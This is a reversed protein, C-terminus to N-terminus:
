EPGLTLINPKKSKERFRYTKDFFYRLAFNYIKFNEIFITGIIKERLGVIEWINRKYSDHEVYYACM